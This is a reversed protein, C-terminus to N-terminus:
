DEFAIQQYAKTRLVQLDFGLIDRIRKGPEGMLHTLGILLHTTTLHTAETSWAAARADTLVQEAEDSYVVMAPPVDTTAKLALSSRTEVGALLIGLAQLARVAGGDDEKVMALLVHEPLVSESPTKRASEQAEELVRIVRASLQAGILMGRGYTPAKWSWGCKGCRFDQPAVTARCSFCLFEQPGLAYTEEKAYQSTNRKLEGLMANLSWVMQAAEHVAEKQSAFDISAFLRRNKRVERVFEKVVRARFMELIRIAEGLRKEQSENM